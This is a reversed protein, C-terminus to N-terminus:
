HYSGPQIQWIIEQMAILNQPYQIIPRGLWSFNYTYKNDLSLLWDLSKEKNITNVGQLRINEPHEVVLTEFNM